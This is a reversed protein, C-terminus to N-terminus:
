EHELEELLQRYADNVIQSFVRSLGSTDPHVVRMAQRYASKVEELSAGPTLGLVTWPNHASQDKELEIEDAIKARWEPDVAELYAELLDADEAREGQRLAVLLSALQALTLTSLDTNAPFGSYDILLLGTVSGDPQLILKIVEGTATNEEKARKRPRGKQRHIPADPDVGLWNCTQRLMATEVVQAISATAKLHEPVQADELSQGPATAILQYLELARKIDQEWADVAINGILHSATAENGTMGVALKYVLAGISVSSRKEVLIFEGREEVFTGGTSLSKRLPHEAEPEPETALFAQPDQLRWMLQKVAVSQTQRRGDPTQQEQDSWTEITEREMVDFINPGVLVTESLQIPLQIEEGTLSHRIPSPSVWLLDQRRFEVVLRVSERGAPATQIHRKHWSM